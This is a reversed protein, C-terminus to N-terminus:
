TEKEAKLYCCKQEVILEERAAATCQLSFPKMHFINCIYKPFIASRGFYYKLYM